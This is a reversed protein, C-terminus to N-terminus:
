AALALELRNQRDKLGVIRDSPTHASGTNIIASIATWEGRDARENCGRVQWFWGAVLAAPGPQLLLDPNGELDLGLAVGAARYNARGTLQLLSRGRFLFGDGSTEPGNGLRDAYVKNALKQPNGAFPAASSLTPFRKPWVAVLRPATYNLNEELRTFDASEHGVQALFAAARAKTNIGFRTFAANLPGLWVAAKCRPVMKQLQSQTLQYAM